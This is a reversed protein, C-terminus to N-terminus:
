HKRLARIRGRLLGLWRDHLSLMREYVPTLPKRLAGAAMTAAWAVPLAAAVDLPFHVGLYVRSWGVMLGVALLPFGWLAFKRTRLAALALSWFVTVHDSPLGPDASHDLYQTGVHLASPRPQPWILTVVQAMALALGVALLIQLLDLKAAHDGRLWGTVMTIPVLVILWSALLTALLLQQHSMGPPANILQFFHLNTM